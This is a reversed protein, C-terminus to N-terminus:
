RGGAAVAERPRGARVRDRRDLLALLPTAMVTTTIAVVVLASFMAQTVIGAALGLNLAVLQMLGRAN